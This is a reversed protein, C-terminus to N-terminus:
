YIFLCIIVGLVMSSESCTHIAFALMTIIAVKGEFTESVKNCSIINRIYIIYFCITVIIGMSCVLAFPGNGTNLFFIEKMNGFLWEVKGNMLELYRVYIDQRGSFVRKGMFMLTNTQQKSLYIYIPLFIFPIVEIGLIIITPIRKKSFFISFVLVIITTALCTRSGTLYILYILYTMLGYLWLKFKSRRHEILIISFLSFLVIGTFNANDFNLTLLTSTTSTGRFYYAFPLFSYISLVVAAIEATLLLCNHMKPVIKISSQVCIILMFLVYCMVAQITNVNLPIEYFVLEFLILMISVALMVFDIKKIGCIVLQNYIIWFVILYIAFMIMRLLSDLELPYIVIYLVFMCCFAKFNALGVGTNTNSSYKYNDM